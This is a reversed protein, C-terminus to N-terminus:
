LLNYAENLEEFSPEYGSEILCIARVILSLGVPIGIESFTFNLPHDPFCIQGQSEFFKSVFNIYSNTDNESSPAYHSIIDIVTCYGKKQYNILLKMLARLGYKMETFQVFSIDSQVDCMGKWNNAYNIRINGPNNNRIGRSTNQIKM